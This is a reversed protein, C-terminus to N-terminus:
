KPALETTLLSMGTLNGGPRALSAILGVRVLDGGGVFVVPITTTANKVALATAAGGTSVILDVKLRVLETALKPLRETKADAWRTEIVINQGEVYSRLRMGDVFAAYLHSYLTPSVASLFGIRWVKKPQQAFAPVCLAFLMAGLTLVTIKKKM